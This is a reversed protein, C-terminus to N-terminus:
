GCPCESADDRPKKLPRPQQEGFVTLAKGYWAERARSAQDFARLCEALYEALICDPTNSGNEMSNGNIVAELDRRFDSM